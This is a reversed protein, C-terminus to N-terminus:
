REEVFPVITKRHGYHEEEETIRDCHYAHGFWYFEDCTRCYDQTLKCGETCIHLYGTARYRARGLLAAADERSLLPM